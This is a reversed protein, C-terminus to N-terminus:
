RDRRDVEVAVDFVGTKVGGDTRVQVWIRYRGPRPFAYPLSVVGSEIRPPTHAVADDGGGARSAVFRRQAAASITGMPHLHVFVAGDERSVAAHAMMGMYPELPAPGGDPRRVAFRLTLDRDVRLPGAGPEWAMTYGGGLPSVRRAGAGPVPDAPSLVRWADDPDVAASGSGAAPTDPVDVTDTLTQAFGSEHLVDAYLRYRGGPLPPLVLAFSASDVPPPHLHAFADLGPDRM